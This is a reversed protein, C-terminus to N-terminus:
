LNFKSMYGMVVDMIEKRFRKGIESDMQIEYLLDQIKIEQNQVNFTLDLEDFDDTMKELSTMIIDLDGIAEKIAQCTMQHDNKYIIKFINLENILEFYDEHVLPIQQKQEINFFSSYFIIKTKQNKKRYEKILQLGTKERNIKNFRAGSFNYDFMVIDYPEKVEFENVHHMFTFNFNIDNRNHKIMREIASFYHQISTEDDIVLVNYTKM